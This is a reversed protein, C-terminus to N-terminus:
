ITDEKANEFWSMGTPELRKGLGLINRTQFTEGSKLCMRRGALSIVDERNGHNRSGSSIEQRDTVSNNYM